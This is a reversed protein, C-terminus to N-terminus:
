PSGGLSLTPDLELIKENMHAIYDSLNKALQADIKKGEASALTLSAKGLFSKADAFEDNQFAKHAHAVYVYIEFETGLIMDTVATVLDGKGERNLTILCFDIKNEGPEHFRVPILVMCVTAKYVKVSDAGVESVEGWLELLVNRDNLGEVFAGVHDNGGENWFRDACVAPVTNESVNGFRSWMESRIAMSHDETISTEVGNVTYKLNGIVIKYKSADADIDTCTKAPAAFIFSLLLVASTARRM